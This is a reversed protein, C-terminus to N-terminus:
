FVESLKSNISVMTDEIKCKPNRLPSHACFGKRLHRTHRESM